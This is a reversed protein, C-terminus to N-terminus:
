RGTKRPTEGISAVEVVQDVAKLVRHDHTALVLGAGESVAMTRLLSLLAAANADDLASTPEDALVLAPRNFLARAVAVRQAQGHSIRDARRHRIGALGLTELLHDLRAQADFPHHRVTIRSDVLKSACRAPLQINAAVSLADVLHFSQFVLGVCYSRFHDRAARRLRWPDIGDVLLTGAIPPRIAAMAMLATTKGSGSPGVLAMSQGAALRFDPLRAFAGHERGLVLEAVSLVAADKQRLGAADPGNPSAAASPQDM